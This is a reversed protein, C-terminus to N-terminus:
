IRLPTFHALTNIPVTIPAPKAVPRSTASKKLSQEGKVPRTAPKISPANQANKIYMPYSIFCGLSSLKKNRFFGFITSAIIKMQAYIVKIAINEPASAITICINEIGNAPSIVATIAILIATKPNFCILIKFMATTGNITASISTIYKLYLCKEALPFRVKKFGIAYEDSFIINAPHM